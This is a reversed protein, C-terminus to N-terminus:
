DCKTQTNVTSIAVFLECYNRHKLHRAANGPKVSNAADSNGQNEDFM